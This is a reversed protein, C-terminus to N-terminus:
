VMEEVVRRSDSNGEDIEIQAYPIDASADNLPPFIQRYCIYAITMGLLGGVLIDEQHHRYDENRSIGIWCALTLPLFFMVIAWSSTKKRFMRLQSAICLSLYGLGSFSFSTHGSPFSRLGDQLTSSKWPTTCVQLDVWGTKPSSSLPNCRSLFDPRPRGVTNKIITVILGCVMTSYLLGTLSKWFLLPSKRYRGIGYLTFGPLLLSILGLYKTPVREHEAHPHSITLDELSFQRQFPLMTIDLIFYSLSVLLLVAYDGYLIWLEKIREYNVRNEASM